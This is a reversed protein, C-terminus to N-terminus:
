AFTREFRKKLADPTPINTQCGPAEIVFSAMTVGWRVALQPPEGRLIGGLFGATFADGAGTTDVVREPQVAPVHWSDAHTYITV